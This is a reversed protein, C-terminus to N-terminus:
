RDLSYFTDTKWSATSSGVTVTPQTTGAVIGWNEIPNGRNVGLATGDVTSGGLFDNAASPVTTSWTPVTAGTVPTGGSAITLHATEPASAYSAPLENLLNAVVTTGAATVVTMTIVNLWLATAADFIIYDDGTAIGATSGVTLTLTNTAQVYTVNSVTTQVTAYLEQLNGNSDILYTSDFPTQAASLTVLDGINPLPATSNTRTFLSAVYKQQDIGDSFYLTNGISQFFTQGAGPSKSFLLTDENNSVIYVGTATDALVEINETNPGFMRFAFFADVATFSHSNYVLNGPRRALTLKPTIECNSGDILADGRSGLYREEYASGASRLPSRQSVLGSYWRGSYLPTYRPAKQTQGGAIQLSGAM